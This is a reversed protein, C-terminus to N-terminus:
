DKVSWDVLHDELDGAQSEPIAVGRVSIGAQHVTEPDGSVLPHWPFLEKGENILRYACTSPLWKLAETLEERLSLCDPVKRVRNQYDTCRCYHLDLLRCAVSTYFVEGTEEDELKHLCCKGCGDCLAEWEESSMAQLPKHKWFEPETM